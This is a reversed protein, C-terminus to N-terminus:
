ANQLVGKCQELFQIISNAGAFIGAGINAGVGVPVEIPSFMILLATAAVGGYIYLGTKFEPSM